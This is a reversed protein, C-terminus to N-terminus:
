FSIQQIKSLISEVFRVGVIVGDEDLYEARSEGNEGEDLCQLCSLVIETYKRGMTIPLEQEALKELFDKNHFAAKVRHKEANFSLHAIKESPVAVLPGQSSSTPAEYAVLSTWLGIELLIVGVSYIDRQM